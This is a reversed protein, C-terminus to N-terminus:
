SALLACVDTVSGPGTIGGNPYDPANLSWSVKGVTLFLGGPYDGHQPDSILNRGTGTIVIDFEPSLVIAWSISGNLSISLVKSAPAPGTLTATSAAGVDTFLKLRKKTGSTVPADVVKIKGTYVANVKFGPCDLTDTTQEIPTPPAAAASGSGAFLGLLITVPILARKM